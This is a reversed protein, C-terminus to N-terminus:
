GDQLGYRIKGWTGSVATVDVVTEGPVLGIVNNKLEAASSRFNVSVDTRYKGTSFGSQPSGSVSSYELSLWGEAGDYTTHGWVGDVRDILLVSGEPIVCLILADTSPSVRFNMETDPIYLGTEYTVAASSEGAAFSRPFVPSFCIVSVALATIAAFFALRKGIRSKYM